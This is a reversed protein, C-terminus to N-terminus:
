INLTRITTAILKPRNETMESKIVQNKNHLKNCLRQFFIFSVLNIDGDDDDDHEDKEITTKNDNNKHVYKDYVKFNRFNTAMRHNM